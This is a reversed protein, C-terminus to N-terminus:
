KVMAAAAVAEEEEEEEGERKAADTDGPEAILAAPYHM